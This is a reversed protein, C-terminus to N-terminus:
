EIANCIQGYNQHCVTIKTRAAFSDEPKIRDLPFSGDVFPYVVYAFGCKEFSDLVVVINPHTL